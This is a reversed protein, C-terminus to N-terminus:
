KFNYHFSYFAAQSQDSKFIRSLLYFSSYSTTGYSIVYKLRAQDYTRSM